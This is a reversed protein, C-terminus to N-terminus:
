GGHEKDSCDILLQYALRSSTGGYKPIIGRYEFGRKYVLAQMAKNDTHTDVRVDNLSLERCKEVLSALMLQGLRKGRFKNSVAIRHLSAYVPSDNEIWSGEIATYSPDTETTITGVAAVEGEYILVYSLGKQIDIVAQEKNPYGNQWQDIGQGKLLAVASKFINLIDDIDKITALRLSAM